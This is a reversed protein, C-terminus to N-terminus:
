TSELTNQEREKEGHETKKGAPGERVSWSEAEGIRQSWWAAWERWRGQEKDWIQKEKFTDRGRLKPHLILKWWWLALSVPLFLPTCLPYFSFSISLSSSCLSWLSYCESILNFSLSLSVFSFLLRVKVSLAGPFGLSLARIHCEEGWICIWSIGSFVQLKSFSIESCTFASDVSLKYKQGIVSSKQM